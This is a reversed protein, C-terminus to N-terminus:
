FVVNHVAIKRSLLSFRKKTFKKKSFHSWNVANKKRSIRKGAKMFEQTLTFLSRHLSKKEKIRKNM